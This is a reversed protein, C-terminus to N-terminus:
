EAKLRWATACKKSFEALQEYQRALSLLQERVEAIQARAALARVSEAMSKYHRENPARYEADSAM